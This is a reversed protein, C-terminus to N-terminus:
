ARSRRNPQEPTPWEEALISWVENDQRVGGVVWASRLLGERTMGLRRAVAASRVNSPSNTWEVRKMGRVRIAWDIVHRCARTVLGRGQAEPALWVGMQCTGRTTDFFFLQTIGVFKGHLWIGFLHETDTAHGNAFRQLHQRADHVTHVSYAVPIDPKLDERCREVTELFEEAHWPELMGLEAGDGLSYTFV